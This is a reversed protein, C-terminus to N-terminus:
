RWYLRDNTTQVVSFLPSVHLKEVAESSPLDILSEFFIESMKNGCSIDLFGGFRM